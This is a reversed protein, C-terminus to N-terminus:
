VPNILINGLSDVEGVHGPLILSTSDMETVIAPGQISDGGKLGARDYIQAAHDRGEHFISTAQIIAGSPDGSGRPIEGLAALNEAG